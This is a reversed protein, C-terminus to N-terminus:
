AQLPPLCMGAFTACRIARSRASIDALWDFRVLPQLFAGTFIRDPNARVGECIRSFAARTPIAGGAEIEMAVRQAVLRVDRLHAINDAVIKVALDDSHQDFGSRADRLEAKRAAAFIALCIAACTAFVAAGIGCLTLTASRQPRLAVRAWNSSSKGNSDCGTLRVAPRMPELLLAGGLLFPLLLPCALHGKLLAPKAGWFGSTAELEGFGLSNEIDPKSITSHLPHSPSYFRIPFEHLM